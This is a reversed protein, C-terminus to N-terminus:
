KKWLKKELLEAKFPKGHAPYIWRAGKELLMRISKKIIEIDQAFIPLGVGIRMPLGNMVLDGVFAEGSDLLLSMSGSTHGPTYLVKGHIGYSELSLEKDELVIDISVSPFNVLPIFIKIVKRLTKGWLSIGQPLTKNTGELWDKEHKNIAVKCGTLNKIEYASGIHDWHGHTLLIISVDLPKISLKNLGKIFKDCKNPSGTDVLILGDQKILYCNTPGLTLRNITAKM